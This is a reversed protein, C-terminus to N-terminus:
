RSEVMRRTALSASRPRSYIPQVVGRLNSDQVRWEVGGARTTKVGPVPGMLWLPSGDHVVHRVPVSEAVVKTEDIGARVFAAGAVGCRSVRGVGALVDVPLRLELLLAGVRAFPLLAGLVVALGGLFQLLELVRLQGFGLLGGFADLFEFGGVGGVLRFSLLVLPLRLDGLLGAHGGRQQVAVRELGHGRVRLGDVLVRM